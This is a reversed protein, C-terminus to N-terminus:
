WLVCVLSKENQIKHLPRPPVHQGVQGRSNPPVLAGRLVCSAAPPETDAGCLGCLMLTVDRLLSEWFVKRVVQACSREM